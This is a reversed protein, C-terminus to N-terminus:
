LGRKDGRSQAQTRRGRRRATKADGFELLDAAHDGFHEIRKRLRRVALRRQHFGRHLFAHPCQGVAERNVLLANEIRQGLQLLRSVCTFSERGVSSEATIRRRRTHMAQLKRKVVNSRTCNRSSVTILRLPRRTGNSRSLSSRETCIANRLRGTSGSRISCTTDRMTRSSSVM